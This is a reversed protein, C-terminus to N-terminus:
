SAKGIALAPRHKNGRYEFLGAAHPHRFAFFRAMGPTAHDNLKFASDTESLLTQHRIYEAITRASYHKRGSKFVRLAQFEFELYIAWNRALWEGFGPKFQDPAKNIIATIVRAYIPNIQNAEM